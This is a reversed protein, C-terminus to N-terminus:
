RAKDRPRFTADLVAVDDAAQKLSRTRSCRGVGRSPITTVLPGEGYAYVLYSEGRQLAVDCFGYGSGGVNPVGVAVRSASLGKWSRQMDFTVTYRVTQGDMLMGANDAATEEIEIITGSFIATAREMEEAVVRPQRCQYALAAPTGVVATVAVAVVVRCMPWV